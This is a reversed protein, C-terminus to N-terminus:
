WLPDRRFIKNVAWGFIVVVFAITAGINQAADSYDLHIRIDDHQCSINFMESKDVHEM